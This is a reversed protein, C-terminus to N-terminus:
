FFRISEDEKGVYPFLIRFGADSVCVGSVVLDGPIEVGDKKEFV